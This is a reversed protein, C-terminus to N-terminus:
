MNQTIQEIFDEIAEVDTEAADGSEAYVNRVYKAARLEYIYTAGSYDSKAVSQPFDSLTVLQDLEGDICTAVVDFRCYKEAIVEKIAQNKSVKLLAALRELAEAETDTLRLTFTKM